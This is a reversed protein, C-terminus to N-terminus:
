KSSRCIELEQQIKEAEAQLMRVLAAEEDARATAVEAVSRQKQAEMLNEQALIANENTYRTQIQAYVVFFITVLVMVVMSIIRLAKMNVTQQSM